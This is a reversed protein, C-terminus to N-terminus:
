NPRDPYYYVKLAGDLESQRIYEYSDNIEEYAIVIQSNESVVEKDFGTVNAIFNDSNLSYIVGIKNKYIDNLSNKCREVIELNGESDYGVNLLFDNWKQTFLAALLKNETAYVYNKGHTSVRPIIESLGKIPSGHFVIKDM